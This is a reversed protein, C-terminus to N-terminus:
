KRFVLFYVLIVPGSLLILVVLIIILFWFCLDWCCCILEGCSGIMESCCRKIRKCCYTTATVPSPLPCRAYRYRRFRECGRLMIVGNAVLIIKETLTIDGPFTVYIDWCLSKWYFYDVVDQHDSVKQFTISIEDESQGDTVKQSTFSEDNRRERIEFLDGGCM